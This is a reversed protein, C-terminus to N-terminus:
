PQALAFALVNHGIGHGCARRAHQVMSVLVHDVCARHGKTSVDAPRLTNAHSSISAMLVPQWKDGHWCRPMASAPCVSAALAGVQAPASQLPCDPAHAARRAPAAGALPLRVRGAAPHLAPQHRGVARGAAGAAAGPAGGRSRSTARTNAWMRPPATCGASTHERIARSKRTSPGCSTRGEPTQRRERLVPTGADRRLKALESEQWSSADSLTSQKCALASRAPAWWAAGRRGQAQRARGAARRDARRGCLGRAPVRRDPWVRQAPGLGGRARRQLIRQGRQGARLVGLVAVAALGGDGARGPAAM